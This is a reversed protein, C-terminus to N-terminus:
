RQVIGATRIIKRWKATEVDIYAALEEPTSVTLTLGLQAFSEQLESRRGASEFEARLREVIGRPMGAPGLLANSVTFEYGALGEESVTPVEPLLPSRVLGSQALARISGAQVNQLSTSLADMIVQTHGAITDALAPAAGQYPVENFRTGSMNMFLELALHGGAGVGPIAANISGPEAKALGILEAMSKVRLSPHVSLVYPTYAVNTIPTFDRATDYPLKAFLTPNTTLNGSSIMLLTYGDPPSRAVMESGIIASAGPRNVVVVSQGLRQSLATAFSRAILDSNGGPAYPVVIRVTRNPYDEARLCTSNLSACATGVATLLFTRRALM